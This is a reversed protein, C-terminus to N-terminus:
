LISLSFLTMIKNGVTKVSEHRSDFYEIVKDVDDLELM